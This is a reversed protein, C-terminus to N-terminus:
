VCRCCLPAARDFVTDVAVGGGVTQHIADALDFEKGEILNLSNYKFDVQGLVRSAALFIGNVQPIDLVRHNGSDALYLDTGLVVAGTPSAFTLSTPQPLGSNPASTAFGPQGYVKTAIPSPAATTAAPWQSFPAFELIRSYLTDVIYPNDNLFFIGNAAGITSQSVPPPNGVRAGMVRSAGQATGLPPLYVLVRSSNDGVFM